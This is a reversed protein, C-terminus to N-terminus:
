NIRVLKSSIWSFLKLITMLVAQWFEACHFCCLFSIKSRIEGMVNLHGNEGLKEAQFICTTTVRKWKECQCNMKSPYLKLLWPM